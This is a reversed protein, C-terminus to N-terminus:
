YPYRVSSGISCRSRSTSPSCIPSPVSCIMFSTMARCRRPRSSAGYDSSSCGHALQVALEVPPQRSVAHRGHSVSPSCTGSEPPGKEMASPKQIPSPPQLPTSSRGDARSIKFERGTGNNQRSSTFLSARRLYTRTVVAAMELLWASGCPRRYCRLLGRGWTTSKM